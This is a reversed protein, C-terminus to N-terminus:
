MSRNQLRRFRLLLEKVDVDIGTSVKVIGLTDIGATGLPSDGRRFLRAAQILCAESVTNPVSPWGYKATLRVSRPYRTFVRKGSVAREIQTFPRSEQLSNYPSMYFDTGLTWTTFVGIQSDDSELILGTTTAVDDVALLFVARPSYLRQVVVDDQGFRRNCYSDIFRSAATIAASLSVDDNTDPINLRAKLSALSTYDTVYPM